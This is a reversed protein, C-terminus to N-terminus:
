LLIEQRGWTINVRKNGNEDKTYSKQMMRNLAEFEFGYEGFVDDMEKDELKVSKNIREKTMLLGLLNDEISDAYTIFYVDTSERSNFRICRFYFQSMKPLNWQMSECIVLNCSPVNVSSKLSQQTCVLIGNATSEFQQLIEKRKKFSTSGNIIFVPRAFYSSITSFYLNVAELTTCGVIMKENRDKILKIIRAIKTNGVGQYQNFSQPLSCSKILLQLQRIIRLASEKRQNGTNNYHEYVIKYFDSLITEQLTREEFSPKISIHKIQYKDGAVEKFTRVICTYNIIEKLKDYNYVDQGQKKIGLVSSRSPSFCKKFQRFGFYGGYPLGFNENDSRVINSQGSKDKEETYVKECKDILNYSNNYILELQPYLESVNNRTTTGTTLLKFKCKSFATRVSRYRKSNRNSIEDSEDVILQVNNRITRLQKKIFKPLRDNISLATYGVLWYNTNFDLDKCDKIIKFSEGNQTLHEKWTTNIALAPAIIINLKAERYKCVAYSMATKGTGQEANLISYKKCLLKSVDHKQIDNLNFEGIVNKFTFQNVFNLINKSPRIESFPTLQIDCAKPRETKKRRKKKFGALIRLRSLVEAESLATKKWEKYDVNSPVVQNKLRNILDLAKVLQRDEQHAKIEYILKKVQFEYGENVARQSNSFSYSNEKIESQAIEILHSKRENQIKQIIGQIEEWSQFNDSFSKGEINQFFIVKTEFQIGYTNYFANKSLEVQGIWNYNRNIFEIDQKQMMEDQLWKKPVIASFIGYDKLWHKASRLIFSQSMMGGLKLNFPPNSLIVDFKKQKNDWYQVNQRHITANPFCFQAVKVAKPDLEVGTFNVEELHNCFAGVGCTPDLVEGIPNVVNVIQKCIHDPTFFQGNEIEKKKNTYEHFSGFQNFDLGHLKGLGTYFSFAEEQTIGRKEILRLVRENETSRANRNIALQKFKM